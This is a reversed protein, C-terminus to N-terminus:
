DWSAKICHQCYLGSRAPGTLCVGQRGGSCACQQQLQGCGDHHTMPMPTICRLANAMVACTGAVGGIICHQGDRRCGQLKPLSPPKPKPPPQARPPPAKIPESAFRRIVETAENGPTTLWLQGISELRTREAAEVHKSRHLSWLTYALSFRGEGRRAIGEAMALLRPLEPRCVYPSTWGPALACSTAHQRIGADETPTTAITTLTACAGEDSSRASQLGRIASMRARSPKSDDLAIVRALALLAAHEPARDLMDGLRLEAIPITRIAAMLRASSGVSARALTAGLEHKVHVNPEREFATLLREVSAADAYVPADRPRRSLDRAGVFRVAPEDAETMCVLDAEFTPTSSAEKAASTWTTKFSVCGFSFGRANMSCDRALERAARRLPEHMAEIGRPESAASGSPGDGPTTRPEGNRTEKRKRKKTRRKRREGDDDDSVDDGRRCASPVGVLGGAILAVTVARLAALHAPRM